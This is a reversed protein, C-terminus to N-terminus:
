QRIAETTATSSGNTYKYSWELFIRWSEWGQHVCM